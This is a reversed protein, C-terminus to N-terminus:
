NTACSLLAGAHACVQKMQTGSNRCPSTTVGGYHHLAVARGTATEIIPSGSSGGESDCGYGTQSGAASAGYTANVTSLTCRTTGAANEYYGVKKPLGAGHQPFHILMGTTLSKSTATYEGWTAEPNGLLTILTYDYGGAEPSTKLFTGGGYSSYSALTTGTCTTYQYNFRAQVTNTEAQTTFCHANTLMTSANSGAVLWGTCLYSAGGKQFSLRAVPNTNVTYCAAAKRGEDGCVVDPQAEEGAPELPMTGHAVRDVVFGFPGTDDSAPLGAHLTLIARDVGEVMFSWFEGTGQPGRGEYVWNYTGDPSSVTLYDGPPLNFKTFHVRVFTAGPSTVTDSWTAARDEKGFPYESPSSLQYPREDGIKLPQATATTALGLIVAAALIVRYQM